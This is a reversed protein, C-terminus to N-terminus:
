TDPQGADDGYGVNEVVEIAQTMAGQQPQTLTVQQVQVSSKLSVYGEKYSALVFDGDFFDIGYQPADVDPAITFSLQPLHLADVQRRAKSVLVDNNDKTQSAEWGQL